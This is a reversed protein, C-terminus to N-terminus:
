FLVKFYVNNHICYLLSTTIVCNLKYGESMSVEHGQEVERLKKKLRLNEQYIQENKKRNEERKEDVPNMKFHIVQVTICTSQKFIAMFIMMLSLCSYKITVKSNM